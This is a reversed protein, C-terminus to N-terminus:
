SRVEMYAAKLENVAQTLEESDLSSESNMFWVQDADMNFTQKMFTRIFQEEKACYDPLAKVNYDMRVDMWARRLAYILDSFDRTEPMGTRNVVSLFSDAQTHFNLVSRLSDYESMLAVYEAAKSGEPVGDDYAVSYLENSKMDFYFGVGLACASVVGCVILLVTLFKSAKKSGEVSEQVDAKIRAKQVGAEARAKAQETKAELEEHHEKHAVADPHETGCYPCELDQISLEAGCNPCNRM